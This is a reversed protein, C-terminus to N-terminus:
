VALAVPGAPVPWGAAVPSWVATVPLWGAVGSRDPPVLGRRPLPTRSLAARRGGTLHCRCRGLHDEIAVRHGLKDKREHHTDLACRRGLAGIREFTGRPRHERQQAVGTRGVTFPGPWDAGPLGAPDCLDRAPCPARAPLTHEREGPYRERLAAGLHPDMWGNRDARTVVPVPRRFEGPQLDCAGIQRILCRWRFRARRRRHQPEIGPQFHGRTLRHGLNTVARLEGPPSQRARGSGVPQGASKASATRVAVAYRHAFRASLSRGSTRSTPNVSTAGPEHVTM